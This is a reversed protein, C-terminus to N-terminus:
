SFYELMKQEIEEKEELMDYVGEKTKYALCLEGTKENIIGLINPDKTDLVFATFIHLKELLKNSLQIQVKDEGIIVEHIWKVWSDCVQIM